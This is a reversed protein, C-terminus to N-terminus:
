KVNTLTFVVIEPSCLFRLAPIGPNQGLGRTVFAELSGLQYRGYEFRKGLASATLVAGWVPLRVQGGHTHGALALDFAGQAAADPLNDPSHLLLLNVARPDRPFVPPTYPQGFWVPQEWGVIRFPVGAVTRRLATNRLTAWQPSTVPPLVDHNGLITVLPAIAALRAFLGEAVARQGGWMPAHLLDGTIVILDPREAAVRATLRDYFARPGTIHLDSLHVLRVTKGAPVAPHALAQRTITLREPELVFGEVVMLVDLLVIVAAWARLARGRASRRAALWLGVPLTVAVNAGLFCLLLGCILQVFPSV